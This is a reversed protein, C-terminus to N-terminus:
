SKYYIEISDDRYNATERDIYFYEKPQYLDKFECIAKSTSRCKQNVYTTKAEKKWLEIAKFYELQRGFPLINFHKEKIGISPLHFRYKNDSKLNPFSM